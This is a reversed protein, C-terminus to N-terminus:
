LSKCIIPPVHLMFAPLIYATVRGYLASLGAIFSYSDWHLTSKLDGSFHAGQVLSGSIIQQTADCFLQGDPHVFCEPFDAGFTIKWPIKQTNCSFVIM